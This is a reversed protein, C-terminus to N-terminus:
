RALVLKTRRSQDGHRLISFYVGSGLRLGNEDAGDWVLGYNGAPQEGDQLKAVRRGRADLVELLVHGAQPLSYRVTTLNLVPNPTAGELSLSLSAGGASPADSTGDFPVVERAAGWDGFEDYSSLPVENAYSQRLEAGDVPITALGNVDTYYAGGLSRGPGHAPISVLVGAVPRGDDPDNAYVFMEGPGPPVEPPGWTLIPPKPATRWVKLEPDGNLFYMWVNEEGVVQHHVITQLESAMIAESIITHNNEYIAQFMEYDHTHNATTWSNASAGYHAVAGNTQAMWNEGISDGSIRNNQCSFSFVVPTRVGNDLHQVDFNDFFQGLYNWDWWTDISGHGRYCVVGLGDEILLEVLSNTSGNEGGYATEFDPQVEYDALRVDEQAQTYKDPYEEDHAVLLVKDLWDGSMPYGNEYTLTKDIMNELEAENGAPFRGLRAEPLPDTQGDLFTGEICVYVQDSAHGFKDTCQPIFGTDGVLVIYRDSEENGGNYWAIIADRIEDCTTGTEVTTLVDVDYGREIKQDVLPQIEETFEPPTIFLFDGSYWTALDTMWPDLAPYNTFFTEFQLAQRKTLSRPQPSTQGPHDVTLRFQTMVRFLGTAPNWQIPSIDVTGAGVGAFSGYSGYDSVQIRPFDYTTQLYFSEDWEFSPPADGNDAALPQVPFVPIASYADVDVFTTPGLVTNGEVAGSLNALMLNISPLEPAGITEHSSVDPGRGFEIKQFLIGVEEVPVEERWFGHVQVDVITQQPTSGPALVVTPPTGPPTSSDLQVWERASQGHASDIAIAMFMGSAIAFVTRVQQKM